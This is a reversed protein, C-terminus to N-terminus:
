TRQVYLEVRLASGFESQRVARYREDLVAEIVRGDEHVTGFGRWSLVVWVRGVGARLRNAAVTTPEIAADAFVPTYGGWAVSPYIPTLAREGNTGRLYFEFPRRGYRSLFVIRDGPRARAVVYEASARWDQGAKVDARYYSGLWPVSLGVIVLIFALRVLPQGLHAIGVAGLTVLAPLAVILYQALFVPRAISVVISGLVPVSFWLVLLTVRWAAEAARGGQVDDRRATRWDRVLVGIALCCAGAYVLLLLNGRRSIVGGAGAIALAFAHLSGVTTSPIFERKLLDTELIAAFLPAVLVAMLGYGIAVLRVPPKQRRLPISALHALVVFCAFLHAYVAVASAAAYISWRTVTPREIALVFAYTSLIVGLTVLTYVRAEQMYYVFFTNVSLLVAAIVATRRGLLRINLLFLVCQGLVGFAVSPFRLWTETQRGTSWVRLMSYYLGNFPEGHVIVDWMKPIPLHVVAASFAEDHWLSKSALRMCGLGATVALVGLLIGVTRFDSRSEGTVAPHAAVAV